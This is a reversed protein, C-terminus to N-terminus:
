RVSVRAWRDAGLRAAMADLASELMGRRRRSETVGPEWWPGRVRLVGADRDFKPDIRGVFRDGELLPLVYYGHVRKAAPTFAEFRYDFGFLRQLRTRDRIVPDFPCLLEIRDAHPATAFERWDPRAFAAVAQTAALGGGKAGRPEPAVRVELLEGRRVQREAWRKAEAPSVADFFGAIERSTAVGLRAMAERCAWDLHAAASIRPASASEPIVREVLDYIKEFGDRGAIAVRGTRWLHEIAAKEPHWEWWGGSGERPPRELDRTRLPGHRRLKGIMRRLVPAPDGGLRDEWWASEEIREAHRRFRHRWHPFWETPIACADHTWHEFLTRTRELLHELHKPRYDELRTSLILHHARDLVNISDIQVYGLREVIRQVQQPSSRPRRAAGLGQLSLLVRRAERAEILLPETRPRSPM